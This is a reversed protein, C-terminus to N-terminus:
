EGGEQPAPPLTLGARRAYTRCYVPGIRLARKYGHYRESFLMKSAPKIVFGIADAWPTAARYVFYAGRKSITIQM